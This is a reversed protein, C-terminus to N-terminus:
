REPTLRLTLVQFPRLEVTSPSPGLPRELLDTVAIRAVPFSATVTATTRGGLAEYLRVVVDGSHDDALKVAEVVAGDVTV